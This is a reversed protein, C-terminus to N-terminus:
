GAVCEEGREVSGIYTRHLGSAFALEDKSLRLQARLRRLIV